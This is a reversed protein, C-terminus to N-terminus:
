TIFCYRIDDLAAQAVTCVFQNEDDLKGELAPVAEVPRISGLSKCAESRVLPDPDTLLPEIHISPRPGRIRGLSRIAAWRLQRRGHSM